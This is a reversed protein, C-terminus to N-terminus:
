GSFATRAHEAQLDRLLRMVNYATLELLISTVKAHMDDSLEAEVGKMAAVLRREQAALEDKDVVGDALADTFSTLKQVSEHMLPYETKEDFWSTRAM